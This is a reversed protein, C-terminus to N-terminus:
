LKEPETKIKRSQGLQRTTRLSAGRHDSLRQVKLNDQCRKDGTVSPSRKSHRGRLALEDNDHCCVGPMEAGSSVMAPTRTQTSGMVKDSRCPVRM